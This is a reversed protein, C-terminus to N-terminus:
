FLRRLINELLLGAAEGPLTLSHPQTMPLSEIGLCAAGASSVGPGLRRVTFHKEPPLRTQGSPGVSSPFRLSGLTVQTSSFFVSGWAAEVVRGGPRCCHRPACATLSTELASASVSVPHAPPSSMSRNWTLLGVHTLKSWPWLGPAPSQLCTGGLTEELRSWSEPRRLADSAFGASQLPEHRPPGWAGSFRTESDPFHEVM